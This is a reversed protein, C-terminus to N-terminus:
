APFSAPGDEGQLFRVCFKGHLNASPENVLDQLSRAAGQGLLLQHM